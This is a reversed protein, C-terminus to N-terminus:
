IVVIGNDCGLFNVVWCYGFYLGYKIEEVQKWFKKIKNKFGDDLWSEYASCKEWKLSEKLSSCDGWMQKQKEHWGTKPTWTM